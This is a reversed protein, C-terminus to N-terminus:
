RCPIFAVPPHHAEASPQQGAGRSEEEEESVGFTVLAQTSDCSQKEADESNLSVLSLRRPRSLHLAGRTRRHLLGLDERFHPNFLVYLLPNLCAPLPVVVLLVSKVVEPGVSPLKLLSSFSLFAVPFYLLCNTFLLWAVHRIMSCDWLSDPEGKELSCYLRAYTVTMILYCLSNVLVLAVMFGLSSPEEYPMPLCISSVGYDGLLPLLTIALGLLFCLAAVLRLTGTSTKGEAAKGRRVSLGRELAAVTLLFISTESAFISVFGTLKCGTSSEWRAGYRGFSGFTLADVTALTASWLGMLSNVLALLGILLKVPSLFSPSLFISVMVLTNCVLSLTAIVWVGVRILWSGFLHHCPRFPGPSPSCQVTHHSKPEDDFDLLFDEHDQNSLIGERRGFDDKGNNNNDRDWPSSHKECSVFACCQFAYPLEMVRLKPLSEAPLLEQLDENGALKLHTLGHLGSVPLYSLRNSTLDLKILAPLSSFSLPNLSSLKNWALDLSRLSTLGQFTDAQLEEIENHHLDIKQIKECGRFSPLSQIMNYSLDLVQLNPLQDCVTTPLSTIRAGTITLSELSKTGTLDPFETIEAAGNLSLTRLEPLHQFASQGVFQIPNDYFFITLLTPNGTFAQEPISKINNSHFGLEKLTSLARIAIPFEELNNYNLDLTELSHLGDFCQTGLTRIRNNNLHLVVLSSLNTFARDPIHTIRNLALTMAQLSSLAGLADVPVETLSNDDLWLHRLSQLGDFCGRPVSSIHNADLRLSQLNRLNQLAEGPVRRLQNNQLMLVKLNFLGYFAGKPIHTLDNGALRLEELFHLNSLAGSSLLTLNNMSLDLYSTFVSLNAPIETLGLDSCDVRQLMGDEECHCRSPCDGVQAGMQSIAGCEAVVLLLIILVKRRHLM